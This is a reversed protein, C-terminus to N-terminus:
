EGSISAKDQYAAVLSTKPLKRAKVFNFDQDLFQLVSYEVTSNFIYDGNQYVETPYQKTVNVFKNGNRSITALGPADKGLLYKVYQGANNYVLTGGFTYVSESILGLTQNPLTSFPAINSKAAAFAGYQIYLNGNIPNLGSFTTTTNTGTDAITNKKSGDANLSIVISYAVNVTTNYTSMQSAIAEGNYFWQNSTAYIAFTVQGADDVFMKPVTLGALGSNSFVETHWVEDGNTDFKIIRHPYKFLASPPNSAENNAATAVYLNGDPTFQMGQVNLIAIGSNGYQANSGSDFSKMWQTVGSNSIKLIKVGVTNNIIGNGFDVPATPQGAPLIMILNGNADIKGANGGKIRKLLTQTGDPAIKGYVTENYPFSGFGGPDIQTGAFLNKGMVNALFYLNGNADYRMETVNNGAGGFNFASDWGNGLQAYTQTLGSLILAIILTHLKKM